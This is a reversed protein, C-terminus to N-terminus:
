KGGMMDKLKTRQKDKIWNGHRVAICDVCADIPNEHRAREDEGIIEKGVEEILSRSYSRLWNIIEKPHDKIHLQYLCCGCAGFGNRDSSCTHILISETFKERFEKIKDEITDTM